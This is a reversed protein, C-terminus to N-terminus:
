LVGQAIMAVRNATAIETAGTPPAGLITSVAGHPRFWVAVSPPLWQDAGSNQRVEFRNRPAPGRDDPPWDAPVQDQWVTVETYGEAVLANAMQQATAPGIHMASWRFLGGLAMWNDGSRAWVPAAAAAQAPRTVLYVGLGVLGLTLWPFRSRAM